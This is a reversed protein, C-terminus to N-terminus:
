ARRLRLRLQPDDHSKSWAAVKCEVRLSACIRQKLLTLTLGSHCCLARRSQFTMASTDISSGVVEASVFSLTVVLSSVLSSLGPM